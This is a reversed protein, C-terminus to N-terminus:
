AATLATTSSKAKRYGAFGLGAFGLLMLAWTQPEPVATISLTGVVGNQPYGVSDIVSNLAYNDGNWSYLNFDQGGAKFSVGGFSITLGAYLTNDAAAYSSLGTITGSAIGNTGDSTVSGSIGTIAATAPGATMFDGSIVLSGYADDTSRDQNATFNFAYVEASATDAALVVPAASLAAGLLVLSLKKM